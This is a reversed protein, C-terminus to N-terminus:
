ATSMGYKTDDNLSAVFIANQYTAMAERIRRRRQKEENREKKMYETMSIDRTDSDRLSSKHRENRM